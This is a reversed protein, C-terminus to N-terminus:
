LNLFGKNKHSARKALTTSYISSVYIRDQKENKLVIFSKPLEDSVYTVMNKKSANRLFNKTIQSISTKEMDFIAIIDKTKVIYDQGLHLYM